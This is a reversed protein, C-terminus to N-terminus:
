NNDVTIQLQGAAISVTDGVNIVKSAGLAGWWLLNGGSSADFIGFHTVPSGGGWGSPTPTPFNSAGNNSTTAGTGSSAVTTGAGQTGAWGSATMSSTIAVRAYANGSVETGGGTDSPAATFLGVYLTAPGTGAAATAGTIGIAQARFFWDVLKNELFDTMGAM